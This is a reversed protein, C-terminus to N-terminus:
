HSNNGKKSKKRLDIVVDLIRGKVVSVIKEQTNKSQLHMGRLVNKRSKSIFWFPYVTKPFLKNKCLERFFGRNDSYKTGKIIKLNKLKTSIIKM